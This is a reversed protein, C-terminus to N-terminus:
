HKITCIRFRTSCHPQQKMLDSQEMLLQTQKGQLLELQQQLTHLAPYDSVDRVQQAALVLQEM